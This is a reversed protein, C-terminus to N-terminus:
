DPQRDDDGGQNHRENDGRYDADEAVDTAGERRETVANRCPCSLNDDWQPIGKPASAFSVWSLGYQGSEIADVLGSSGQAGLLYGRKALEIFVELAM